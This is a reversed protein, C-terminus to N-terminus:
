SASPAEKDSGEILLNLRRVVAQMQQAQGALEASASSSEEASSATRQTMEDMQAVASNVQGIGHSQEDSAVAVQNLLTSVKKIGSTIQGLIEMFEQTAKVGMEANKQSKEILAGTSRAADASRLALNRVEEAVVAFGKGAEGARAAEVAANLALLNTQFAIEDIAKIIKATEDSSQKIINIANAVENMASLGEDAAANAQLALNNAEKANEANSQTMGSMEVLSSSTEELASAQQSAGEALAQSSSAVQVSVAGVQEAGDRLESVMANIPRSISRALYWGLSVGLITSAFGFILIIFRSQSATTRYSATSADAGAEKLRMLNSVNTAVTDTLGDSLAAIEIIGANADANLAPVLLSRVVDVYQSNATTMAAVLAREEDSEATEKLHAAMDEFKKNDAEFRDLYSVNKEVMMMAQSKYTKLSMFAADKAWLAGRLNDAAKDGASSMKYSAWFSIGGMAVLFIIVILVTSIIKATLNLRM